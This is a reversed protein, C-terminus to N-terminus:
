LTELLLNEQEAQAMRNFGKLGIDNLMHTDMTQLLKVVHALRNKEVRKEFFKITARTFTESIPSNLTALPLFLTVMTNIGQKATGADPGDTKGKVHGLRSM